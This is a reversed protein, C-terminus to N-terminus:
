MACAPASTSARRTGSALRIVRAMTPTASSGKRPGTASQSDSISAEAVRRGAEPRRQRAAQAKTMAVVQDQMSKLAVSDGALDAEVAKTKSTVYYGLAGCAIAVTAFGWVMTTASFHKEQKFLIPNYLNIQRSM